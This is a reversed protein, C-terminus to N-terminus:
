HRVTYTFLFRPHCLSMHKLLSYLKGCLLSCWPCRMDGRSETQQLSNNHYLFNYIIRGGKRPPLLPTSGPPVSPLNLMSTIPRCQALEASDAVSSTSTETATFYEELDDKSSKDRSDQNHVDKHPPFKGKQELVRGELVMDQLEDERDGTKSGNCTCEEGGTAVAPSSNDNFASPPPPPNDHESHDPPPSVDTATTAHTANDSSSTTTSPRPTPPFYDAFRVCCSMSVNSLLQWM